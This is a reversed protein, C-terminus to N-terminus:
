GKDMRELAGGKSEIFVFSFRLGIEMQHPDSLVHCEDQLLMLVARRFSGFSAHALGLTIDPKPTELSNPNESSVDSPATSPVNFIPNHFSAIPQTQPSTPPRNFFRPFLLSSITPPRHQQNSGRDGHMVNDPELRNLPHVLPEEIEAPAEPYHDVFVNTNAM